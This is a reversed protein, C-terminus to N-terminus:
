DVHGETAFVPKNLSLRPVLCDAKGEKGCAETNHPNTLPPARAPADM